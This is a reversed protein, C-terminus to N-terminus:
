RVHAKILCMDQNILHYRFVGNLKRIEWAVFDSDEAMEGM